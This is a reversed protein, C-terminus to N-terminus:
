IAPNRHAIHFEQVSAKKGSNLLPETEDVFRRRQRSVQWRDYAEADTWLAGVVVTDPDSEITAVYSSLAGSSELVEATRFYEIVCDRQGPRTHLTLM